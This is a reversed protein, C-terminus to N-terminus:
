QRSPGAPGAECLQRALFDAILGVDFPWVYEIVTGPYRAQLLKVLDPIDKESHIGGRTFMTTMLTVRGAGGAVLDAVADEISPACFENYATAVKKGGLMRGLNAAIDELGTKYPDTGPTRPWERVKRDLEAERSSMASGGRMQRERELKKLEEIMPRPTDSAASGHGVLLVAERQEM